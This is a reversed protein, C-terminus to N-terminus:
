NKSTTNAINVSDIIRPLLTKDTLTTSIGSLSQYDGSDKIYCTDRNITECVHLGELPVNEEILHLASANNITAIESPFSLGKPSWTNSDTLIIQNDFLDRIKDEKPTRTMFLATQGKMQFLILLELGAYQIGLSQYKDWADDCWSVGFSRCQNPNALTHDMIYRMVLGQNVQLLHSRGTTPDTWLTLGSGFCIEESKIKKNYGSDNCTQGTFYDMVFNPGFCWTDTHNYSEITGSIIPSSEKCRTAAM